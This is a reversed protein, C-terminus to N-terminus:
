ANKRRLKLIAAGSSPMGSSGGITVEFLDYVAGNFTLTDGKQPLPSIDVFRVFLHVVSTGQTSGPVYDEAMSPDLINARIPVDPGGTQPHLTASAPFSDLCANQLRAQEAAWDFGAPIM